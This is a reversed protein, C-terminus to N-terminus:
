GGAHESEIRTIAVGAHLLLLDGGRVPAVLTVDIVEVGRPTRVRADGDAVGDVVEGISGEDSCTICTDAGDAAEAQPRMLGPHDICVHTLEWLVHYRLVISGDYPARGDRDDVWLVHGAAGARPQTPGCGIWLTELGWAPARRLADVVISEDATSIACLVDGARVVSRLEAVPQPGTVAVAALARKGITVPHVFEVAVHRAHQPWAPAICWMTAGAAFRRALSFSASALDRGQAADIDLGSADVFPAASM